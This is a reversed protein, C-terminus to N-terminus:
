EFKTEFCPIKRTLIVKEGAGADPELIEVKLEARINKGKFHDDIAIKQHGDFLALSNSTKKLGGILKDGAYVKLETRMLLERDHSQGVTIREADSHLPTIRAVRQKRFTGADNEVIEEEIQVNLHAPMCLSVHQTACGLPVILLSVLVAYKM